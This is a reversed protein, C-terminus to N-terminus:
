SEVHQMEEALLCLLEQYRAEDLRRLAISGKRWPRGHRVIQGMARSGSTPPSRHGQRERLPVYPKGRTPEGQLWNYLLWATPDGESCLDGLARGLALPMAEYSRGMRKAVRLVLAAVLVAEDQVSNPKTQPSTPPHSLSQRSFPIKIEPPSGAPRQTEPRTTM